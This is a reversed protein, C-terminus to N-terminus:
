GGYRFCDAILREVTLIGSSVDQPRRSMHISYWRGDGGAQFCGSHESGFICDPPDKIFFHIAHRSPQSASGSYAGYPTVYTGTYTSNSKKWGREQWYPIQQRQVVHSSPRPIAGRSLASNPIVASLRKVDFTQIKELAKNITDTLSSGVSAPTSAFLKQGDTVKDYISDSNAFYEGEPKNSLLGQPLNVDRLLDAATTGPAITRDLLQGSGLISVAVQKM